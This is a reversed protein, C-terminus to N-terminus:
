YFFSVFGVELHALFYFPCTELLFFNFSCKNQVSLRILPSFFFRQMLLSFKVSTLCTTFFFSRSLLRLDLCTVNTACRMTFQTVAQYSVPSMSYISQGLLWTEVFWFFNERYVLQTLFAIGFRMLSGLKGYFCNRSPYNVRRVLLHRM